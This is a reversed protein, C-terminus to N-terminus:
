LIIAVCLRARVCLGANYGRVENGQLAIFSNDILEGLPHPLVFAGNLWEEYNHRQKTMLGEDPAFAMNWQVPASLSVEPQSVACCNCLFFFLLFSPIFNIIKFFLLVGSRSSPQFLFSVFSSVSQPLMDRTKPLVHPVKSVVCVGIM